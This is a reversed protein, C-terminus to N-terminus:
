KLLSVLSPSVLLMASHSISSIHPQPLPQFPVVLDPPLNNRLIRDINVASAARRFQRGGRVLEQTACRGFKVKRSKM